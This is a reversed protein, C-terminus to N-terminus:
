PMGIMVVSQGIETPLDTTEPPKVDKGKANL